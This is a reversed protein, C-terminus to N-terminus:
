SIVSSLSTAFSINRQRDITATHLIRSVPILPIISTNIFLNGLAIQDAPTSQSLAASRIYRQDVAFNLTESTEIQIQLALQEDNPEQLYRSLTREMVEEIADIVRRVSLFSLASFDNTLTYAEKLLTGVGRETAFYNIRANALLNKDSNTYDKRLKITSRTVGRQQGAISYGPNRVLDTYALQGAIIGSGPVFLFTNTYPDLIYHDSTFAAIRDGSTGLELQFYSLLSRADQRNTPADLIAVGRQRTSVVQAMKQQVAVTAFGSNAIAAIPYIERDVLADLALVVDGDTVISGSSGTGFTTKALSKITPVVTLAPVNSRVRFLRSASNIVTAIETQSAGAQQQINLTCSYSEVPSFSSVRTDYFNVTFMDQVPITSSSPPDVVQVASAGYDLWTQQAPDLIAVVQWAGAGIKRYVRYGLAGPILAQLSVLVPGGTATLYTLTAPTSGATEGYTNYATIVYSLSANNSLVSTNLTQGPQALDPRQTPAPVTPTDLNASVIEVQFNSSISGPGNLFFALVNDDLSTPNGVTGAATEVLTELSTTGLLSLVRASGPNKNQMVVMGTTADSAVIRRCWFSQAGHQEALMATYHFFGLKPDPRGYLYIFDDMGFVETWAIPGQKALGFIASRTGTNPLVGIASNNIERTYVASRAELM